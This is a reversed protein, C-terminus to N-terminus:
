PKVEFGYAARATVNKTFQWDAYVVVQLHPTPDFADDSPLDTLAYPGSTTGDNLDIVYVTVKLPAPTWNLRTLDSIQTLLVPDKKDFKHKASDTNPQVESVDGEGGTLRWRVYDPELVVTDLTGDPVATRAAQFVLIYTPIFCVIVLAIVIIAKKM